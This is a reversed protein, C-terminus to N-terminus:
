KYALRGERLITTGLGRHAFGLVEDRLRYSYGTNKKIGLSQLVLLQVSKLEIYLIGYIYLDSYLKIKLNPM